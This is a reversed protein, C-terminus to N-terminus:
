KHYHNAAKDAVAAGTLLSALVYGQINAVGMTSVLILCYIAYIRPLTM